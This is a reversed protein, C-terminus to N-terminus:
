IAKARFTGARDVGLAVIAAECASQTAVSDSSATIRLTVYGNNGNDDVLTYLIETPVITTGNQARDAINYAIAYRGARVLTIAGTLATGSAQGPFTRQCTTASNVFTQGTLWDFELPETDTTPREPSELNLQLRQYYVALRGEDSVNFTGSAAEVWVIGSAIQATSLFYRVEYLGATIVDSFTFSARNRAAMTVSSGAGAGNIATTGHLVALQATVAPNSAPYNAISSVITVSM